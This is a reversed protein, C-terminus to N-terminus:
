AGSRLATWRPGPTANARQWREARALRSEVEQRTAEEDRPSAEGYGQLLRRAVRVTEGEGPLAELLARCRPVELTGGLEFRLEDLLRLLPLLSAPREPVPLAGLAAELARAVLRAHLPSARGVSELVPVARQLLLRPPDVTFFPPATATRRPIGPLSARALHRGTERARLRGDGLAQRLFDEAWVKPEGQPSVLSVAVLWYVAPTVPEDEDLLQRAPEWNCLLTANGARLVANALGL